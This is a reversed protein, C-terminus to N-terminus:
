GLFASIGGTRGCRKAVAVDFQELGRPWKGASSRTSDTDCFYSHDLTFLFFFAHYVTTPSPARCYKKLELTSDNAAHADM